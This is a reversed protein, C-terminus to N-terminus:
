VLVTTPKRNTLTKQKPNEKKTQTIPKQKNTQKSPKNKVIM